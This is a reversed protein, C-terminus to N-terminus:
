SNNGLYWFRNDCYRNRKRNHQLKIEKIEDERKRIYERDDPVLSCMLWNDWVGVCYKIGKIDAYLSIINKWVNVFGKCVWGWSWSSRVYLSGQGGTLHQSVVYRAVNKSSSYDIERIDVIFSDGTIDYWNESIFIQPIFDGRYVIHLVGGGESTRCKWYEFRYGARRIRQKLIQFDENLRENFTKNTLTLFRLRENNIMGKKIGSYCRHYGRRQKRSWNSVFGNKKDDQPSNQIINDLSPNKDNM